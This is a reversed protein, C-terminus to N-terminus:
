IIYHYLPAVHERFYAYKGREGKEGITGPPGRQGKAGPQGASGKGDCAVGSNRIFVYKAM